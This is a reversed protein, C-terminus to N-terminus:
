LVRFLQITANAIKATNGSQQRYQLDITHVGNLQQIFERSSFDMYDSNSVDPRSYHREGLQDGDLLIISDFYDNTNTQSWGYSVRINYLGEPLDSTTLSIKSVYSTSTTSSISKSEAWHYQTGYVNVPVNSNYVNNSPDICLFKSNYAVPVYTSTTSLYITFDGTKSHMIFTSDIINVWYEGDLNTINTGSLILSPSPSDFNQYTIKPLLNVWWSPNGDTTSLNFSYLGDDDLNWNIVFEDVNSFDPGNIGLVQIASPGYTQNLSPLADARPTGYSIDGEFNQTPVILDTAEPPLQLDKNHQSVLYDLFLQDNASLASQYVVDVGGAEEVLYSFNSAISSDEIEKSFIPLNVQSDPFESINYNYKPM